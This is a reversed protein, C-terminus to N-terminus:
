HRQGGRDALLLRAPLREWRPSSTSCPSRLGRTYRKCYSRDKPSPYADNSFARPATTTSSRKMVWYSSHSPAGCWDGLKSRTLPYSEKTSISCTRPRGTEILRSGM